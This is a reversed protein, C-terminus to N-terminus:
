RRSRSLLCQEYAAINMPIQRFIRCEEQSSRYSSLSVEAIAQPPPECGIGTLSIYRDGYTVPIHGSEPRSIIHIWIFTFIDFDIEPLSQGLIRSRQFYYPCFWCQTLCSHYFTKILKVCFSPYFFLVWKHTNFLTFIKKNRVQCYAIFFFLNSTKWYFNWKYVNINYLFRGSCYVYQYM